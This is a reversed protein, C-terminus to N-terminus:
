YDRIRLLGVPLSLSCDLLSTIKLIV